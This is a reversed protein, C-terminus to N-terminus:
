EVVGYWDRRKVVAGIYPFVAEVKAFDEPYTDHLWILNPTTLDIGSMRVRQQTRPIPLGRMKMYALVDLQSWGAIPHLVNKLTGVYCRRQLSDARKAGNAILKANAEVGVLDYVNRLKWPPLDDLSWHNPCYTGAKLADRVIPNPYQRVTIGYRKAAEELDREICELDPVLYLYFAEVRKFSRVCLDLVAMSDKGASYSVAVADNEAAHSKLLQLTEEFRGM